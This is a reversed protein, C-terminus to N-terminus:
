LEDGTLKRSTLTVVSNLMDEAGPEVTEFQMHCDIASEGHSYRGNPIFQGSINKSNKTPSELCMQECVCECVYGLIQLM